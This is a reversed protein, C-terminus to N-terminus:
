RSLEVLARILGWVLQSILSLGLLKWGKKKGQLGWVLGTICAILGCFIGFVIEATSLKDDMDEIGASKHKIDAQRDTESQFEGCHKCKRAQPDIPEHCFRCPVQDSKQEEVAAMAPVIQVQEQRTPCSPNPCQGQLGYCVQHMTSHCGPCNYVENGLQIEKGCGPCVRGALALNAKMREPLRAEGPSPGRSVAPASRSPGPGARRDLGGPLPPPQDPPRSEKPRAPKRGGKDLDGRFRIMTKCKPCPRERGVLYEPFKFKTGCSPCIMRVRNEGSEPTKAPEEEHPTELVIRARCKPCSRERGALREPFKIKTGCFPCKMRPQQM